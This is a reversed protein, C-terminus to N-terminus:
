RNEAKNGSGLVTSPVCYPSMSDKNFIWHPESNRGHIHKKSSMPCIQKRIQSILIVNEEVERFTKKEKKQMLHSLSHFIMKGNKELFYDEFNAVHDWVSIFSIFEM